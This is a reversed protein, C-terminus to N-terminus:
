IGGANKIFFEKLKPIKNVAALGVNRAIKIKSNKTEFLSNLLDTAIIMKKASFKTSKNYELILSKSGLDIGSFHYKNVLNCLNKIGLIGLNFGQGAIPHISTAADGIFLVKEHYFKEAEILTLPYAFKDSILKVEGLCNEMKKNLQRIFNKEDLSAIADEDERKVIWVISSQNQDKLPLIALPGNPLFKEHAINEHPKAHSINFVFAIQYYDKKTFHINFKNRLPSFKGDCALLLESELIEENDIKVIAKSDTFEIDQYSNPSFIKINKTQLIQNRLANHILYNEIIYGFNEQNQSTENSLFDLFVPSKYDTIKIDKIIGAEKIVEDFINIEKFLDSSAKSIAYSRGDRKKDQSLIDQKEIVAIKLEPSIKALSLAATMGAYSGGIITIDFYQKTM